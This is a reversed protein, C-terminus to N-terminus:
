TRVIVPELNAREAEKECRAQPMVIAETGIICCVMACDDITCESNGELFTANEGQCLSGTTVACGADSVCCGTKCFDTNECTYQSFQYAPNCETRDVEQCLFGLTTNECCGVEAKISPLVLLFSLLILLLIIKRM